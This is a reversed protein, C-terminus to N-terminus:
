RIVAYLGKTNVSHPLIGQHVYLSALSDVASQDIEPVSWYDYLGISDAVAQEVAIYKPLVSRASDPNERIFQHSRALAAHLKRVISSDNEALENSVLSVATPFPKLIYKYLPNVEIPRGIGKQKVITCVPELCFLAKVQGTSLAQPQISPRLETIQLNDPHVFEDLVLRLFVTMQSGPFTGVQVNGLDALSDISTGMGSVIMHVSTGSDAATMEIIRFEGETNAELSLAAQLAVIATADIRNTLLAELAQNSSEFEVARVDLNVDEFYGNELAIFFSADSAIPLYGIRIAGDRGAEPGGCGLGLSFVLGLLLIWKYQKFM